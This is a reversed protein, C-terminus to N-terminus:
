LNCEPDVGRVCVDELDIARERCDEGEHEPHIVHAQDKKVARVHARLPFRMERGCRMGLKDLSPRLRGRQTATGRCARSSMPGTLFPPATTSDPRTRREKSAIKAHRETNRVAADGANVM